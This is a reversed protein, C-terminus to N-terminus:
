LNRIVAAPCQSSVSISLAGSLGLAVARRRTLVVSVPGASIERLRWLNEETVLEAAFAFVSIEDDRILVPEGRRLATIAQGLANGAGFHSTSIGGRMAAPNTRSKLMRGEKGGLMM